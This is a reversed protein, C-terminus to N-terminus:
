TFSPSIYEEKKMGTHNNIKFVQVPIHRKMSDRYSELINTFNSAMDVTVWNSKLEYCYRNRRFDVGVKQDLVLHTAKRLEASSLRAM